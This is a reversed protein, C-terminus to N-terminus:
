PALRDSACSKGVPESQRKARVGAHPVTLRASLRSPVRGGDSERWPMRNDVLMNPLPVARDKRYRALFRRAASDSLAPSACSWQSHTHLPIRNRRCNLNPGPSRAPSGAHSVPSYKWALPVNPEGHRFHGARTEVKEQKELRGGSGANKGMPYVDRPRKGLSV